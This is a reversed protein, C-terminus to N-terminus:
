KKLQTIKLYGKKNSIKEYEKALESYDAKFRKNDFTTSQSDAVVTIKLNDTDFSKIGNEIMQKYVLDKLTAYKAEIEAMIEKQKVLENDLLCLAEYNITAVKDNKYMTGSLEATFLDEILNDPLREVETKDFQNDKIHVAFLRNPKFGNQKEFLYACISLQWQLYSKNLVSTFKWDYLNFETDVMDIQTAFNTNDSALYENSLVKIGNDKRFNIYNALLEDQGKTILVLKDYIEIAAHGNTGRQRANELVNDPIMDFSNPFLHKSLIGTIGQLKKEGLTYSHLGNDFQVKSDILKSM